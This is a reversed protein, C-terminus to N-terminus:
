FISNKMRIGSITKNRSPSLYEIVLAREFMAESRSFTKLLIEGYFLKKDNKMLHCGYFNTGLDVLGFLGFFPDLTLLIPYEDSLLFIYMM